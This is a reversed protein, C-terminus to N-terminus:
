RVGRPVSLRKVRAPSGLRHVPTDTFSTFSLAARTSPWEVPVDYALHLTKAGIELPQGKSEEFASQLTKTRVYGRTM